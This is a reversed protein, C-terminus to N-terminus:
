SIQLQRLYTDEKKKMASKEEQTTDDYGILHLMGHIVLRAIENRVTVGYERAQRVAQDICVYVEGEIVGGEEELQFSLVDTVTDHMLFKKNLSHITPDDIFVIKVEAQREERSLVYEVIRKTEDSFEIAAKHESFVEVPM